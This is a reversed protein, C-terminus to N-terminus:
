IEIMETYHLLPPTSSILSTRILVSARHNFGFEKNSLQGNRRALIYKWMRKSGYKGWQEVAVRMRAFFIRKGQFTPSHVWENLGKITKPETPNILVYLRIACCLHGIYDFQGDSRALPIEDIETDIWQRCLPCRPKNEGGSGGENIIRRLCSICIVHGCEGLKLAREGERGQGSEPIERKAGPKQYKEFCVPCSAEPDTIEDGVEPLTELYLIRELNSLLWRLCATDFDVPEGAPENGMSVMLLYDDPVQQNLPPM